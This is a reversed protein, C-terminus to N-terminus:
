WPHSRLSTASGAELTTQNSDIFRVEHGGDALFLDLTASVGGDFTLTATGSCGAEIAYDGTFTVRAVHGQISQTGKGVFHGNGDSTFQGVLLYQIGGLGFNTGSLSFAYGGSLTEESCPRHRPGSQGIGM